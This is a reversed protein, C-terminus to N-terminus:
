MGPEPPLQPGSDESESEKEDSELGDKRLDHRGSTNPSSQRVVEELQLVRM